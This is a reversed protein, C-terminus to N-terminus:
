HAAQRKGLLRLYFMPSVLQRRLDVHEFMGSMLRTMEDSRRARAVIFSLVSPFRTLRQLGRSLRLEPLIRTLLDKQFNSLMATSFDGLEHARLATRAALRGGIMANAIGEGTFPDILSAADGVLMWGNGAMPRPKSGLPLKWGKVPGVIEMSEFRSRFMPHRLCRDLLDRLRVGSRRLDSTLMGVGLNARGDGLPFIWFYGPAIGSLYHIEFHNVSAPNDAIGDAYVRIGAAMHHNSASVSGVERAVVSNAGDAGVVIPARIRAGSGTKTAEKLVVGSIGGHDWVLNGVERGEIIEVGSAEANRFLLHDFDIRRCAFAAPADTEVSFPIDISESSPVSFTIGDIGNGGVPALDDTIGLRRMVTLCKGSIADGCVKDRPFRAKDVM